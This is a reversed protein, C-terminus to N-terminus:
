VSLHPNRIADALAPPWRKLSNLNTRVRCIAGGRQASKAEPVLAV